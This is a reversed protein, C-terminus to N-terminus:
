NDAKGLANETAKNKVGDNIRKWSDWIGFESKITCRQIKPNFSANVDVKQNLGFLKQWFNAMYAYSACSITISIAIATATFLIPPSFPPPTLTLVRLLLSLWYKTKITIVTKIIKM